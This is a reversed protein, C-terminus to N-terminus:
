RQKYACRATSDRSRRTASDKRMPVDGFSIIENEHERRDRTRITPERGALM